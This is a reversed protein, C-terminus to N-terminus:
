IELLSVGAQEAARLLQQDLSLLPLCRSRAAELVYGDYAYLGHEVALALARPMDIDIFRLPIAEFSQWAAQVAALTLRRRRLGAVLANGVEWPASGPALLVASATAAVVAERPPEHLLVALIASPDIVVQM